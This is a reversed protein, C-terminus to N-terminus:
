CDVGHNSEDHATVLVKKSNTRQINSEKPLLLGAKFAPPVIQKTTKDILAFVEVLNSAVDVNGLSFQARTLADQM